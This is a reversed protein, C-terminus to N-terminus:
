IIPQLAKFAHQSPALHYKKLHQLANKWDNSSFASCKRFFLIWEQLAPENPM